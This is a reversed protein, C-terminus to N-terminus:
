EEGLYAKIVREDSQVAEPRDVTIPRGHEMVLIRDSIDMVLRMDHEILLVAINYERRIRDIMLALDRKEQPNLGAAPEDLMLLRPRTIMCRAIELRRQHGYALNGAERNAYERLDMFDLWQMAHEIAAQEARRYARTVLLGSLLGSKVQMHQAVLLNELVTLNKFLRVGQFTRVLGKRAVRHSPLGTINEGALLIQGGSPKYFGGICNFVTTKGAGNPGIISFVENARVDFAVGDVALLGGFRMVLARVELLPAPAPVLATTPESM